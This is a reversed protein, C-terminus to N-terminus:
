KLWRPLANAIGMMTLGAVTMVAAGLPHRFQAAAPLAAWAFRWCVCRRTAGLIGV